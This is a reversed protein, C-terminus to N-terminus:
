RAPERVARGLYAAGVLDQVAPDLMELGAPPRTMVQAAGALMLARTLQFDLASIPEGGGHFNVPFGGAVLVHEGAGVRYHNAWPRRPDGDGGPIMAAPVRLPWLEYELDSSAGNVLVTPYGLRVLDPERLIGSGTSGVLLDCDRLVGALDAVRHGARRALDSQGRGIDHVTVEVDAALLRALHNGMRGYGILGARRPRRGLGDLVAALGVVMSRAVLPAELEAKADSRAVDVVPIGLGAAEVWRAGRTTQEVVRARALAVPRTAAARTAVSGEDILLLPDTTGPGDVLDEVVGAVTRALEREYSHRPDQMRPEDVVRIGRERLAHVAAPRSSYSKSVITMREPDAGGAVLADALPVLSLHVHQVALVDVGRFPASEVLHLKRLTEALVPFDALTTRNM